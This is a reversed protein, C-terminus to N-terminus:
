EASDGAPPSPPHPPRHSARHAKLEEASLFGDKNTDIEDFKDLFFPHEAVEAKSLQSDKNADLETIPNKRGGPGGPGEPCAMAATQFSLLFVSAFISITKKM